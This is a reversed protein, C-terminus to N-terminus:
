QGHLAVSAAEVEENIVNILQTINDEFSEEKVFFTWNIKALM